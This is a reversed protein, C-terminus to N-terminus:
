KHCLPLTKPSSTNLSDAWEQLEDLTVHQGTAQYNEYSRIAQAEYEMRARTQDIYRDVAEILVSHVTRKQRDAIKALDGKRSGLKVSTIGSSTTAQTAPMKKM